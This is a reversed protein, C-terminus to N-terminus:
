ADMQLLHPNEHINGLVVWKMYECHLYQAPWWSTKRKILKTTWQCGSYEVVQIDGHYNTVIDGEYIEVGNQDTIGTFQMLTFRDSYIACEEYEDNDEYGGVIGDFTVFLKWMGTLYPQVMKNYNNDWARFKIDRISEGRKINLHGPM